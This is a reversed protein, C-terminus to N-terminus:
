SREFALDGTCQPDSGGSGDRLVNQRRQEAREQAQMWGHVYFEVAAVGLRHDICDGGPAGAKTEHFPRRM